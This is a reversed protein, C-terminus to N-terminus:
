LITRSCSLLGAAISYVQMGNIVERENEPPLTLNADFFSTGYLLRTMNNHAEPSRVLLQAPVTLNGGHLSLSQEPSLCWNKGFRTGFYVSAFNWFSTYWSTTDGNKEDPRSTIYWGKIVPRLFGNLVLRDKDTRSIDSSRLVAIGTNNQYKKLVELSRALNESPSAM